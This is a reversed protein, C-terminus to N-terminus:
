DPRIPSLFALSDLLDSVSIPMASPDARTLFISEFIYM